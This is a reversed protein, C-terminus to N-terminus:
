LGPPQDIIRDFRENYVPARDLISSLRSAAAEGDFAAYLIHEATGALDTALIGGDKIQAAEALVHAAWLDAASKFTWALFRGTPHDPAFVAAEKFAERHYTTQTM